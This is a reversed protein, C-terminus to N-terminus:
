RSGHVCRNSCVEIDIHLRDCNLHMIDCSLPFRDTYLHKIKKM